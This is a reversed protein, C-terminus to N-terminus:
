DISANRMLEYPYEYHSLNIYMKVDRKYAKDAHGELSTWAGGEVSYWGNGGNSGWGWNM